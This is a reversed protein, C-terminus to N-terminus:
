PDDEQKSEDEKALVELMKCLRNIDERTISRPVQIKAKEGKKTIFELYHANSVRTEPPPTMILNSKNEGIEEPRQSGPAKTNLNEYTQSQEEEENAITSGAEEEEFDLHNNAKLVSATSASDLFAKVAVDLVNPVVGLNQFMNRLISPEPLECGHYREILQKYLPPTSFAIKLDVKLGEDGKPPYLIQNGLQTISYDEKERKMLGFQIASSLLYNLSKTKPSINMIRALSELSAPSRGIRKHLEKVRAITDGLSYYPYRVSKQRPITDPNEVM